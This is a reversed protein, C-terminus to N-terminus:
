PRSVRYFRVDDTAADDVVDFSNAPANTTLLPFWNQLDTSYQITYLQGTQASVRLEFRGPSRMKPEVSVNAAQSAVQLTVAREVFQQNSDTVRVTFHYTGALSPNGSLEGTGGLNLDQPLSGSQLSWTYPTLGGAAVFLNQYPVGVTASPLNTGTLIQLPQAGRDWFCVYQNGADDDYVMQISSVNSWIVPDLPVHSTSNPSLDADYLRGGIGDIRVEINQIFPATAILNGNVDRRDWFIETIQDQSDLTVRPVLLVQRSQAQPDALVFDLPQGKYNVTYIGGPPFPAVNVQPSSYWASDGDYNAGFVASPTNSLGSGSPGTFFVNTPFNMDELNFLAYYYHLQTPFGMNGNTGSGFTGNPFFFVLELNGRGRTLPITLGTVDGSTTDVMHDEGSYGLFRTAQESVNLSWQAASAGLSFNGMADTHTLAGEGLSSEGFVQVGPVGISTAADIVRGSITRSAGAVSIDQTVTLGSTIIVQPM